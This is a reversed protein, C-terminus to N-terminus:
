KRDKTYRDLIKINESDKRHKEAKIQQFENSTKNILHQEIRKSLIQENKSIFWIVKVELIQVLYPRALPVFPTM